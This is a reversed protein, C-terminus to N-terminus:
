FMRCFSLLLILTDVTNPLNKPMKKPPGLLLIDFFQFFYLVGVRRRNIATVGYLNAPENTEWYCCSNDTLPNAVFPGGLSATSAQDDSELIILM